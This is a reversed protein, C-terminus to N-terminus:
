RGRGALLKEIEDIEKPVDKTLVECGTKTILVTDEIRVGFGKEPYYLAPEIAFVMGEKLVGGLPVDHVCLGVGHGFGGTLGRPDIGKAKVAAAVEERVSQPTAGPRYAAICAKQVELVIAYVERQEPTFKGSAPWTRTIDMALHDLDAGFDMLVVEGAGARRANKEYGKLVVAMAAAELEYEFVGPRTALMAQRVGEASLRGNRRMIEIEEPTKVARLADIAPAIDALATQPYRQRLKELRYQDVSLQDNYHGRARRGDMLATESRADDLTDRPSLRVYLKGAGRGTLRALFEDLDGVALVETFGAKAKAAADELLGPGDYQIERASRQPLFLYAGPRGFPVLVLVGGLDDNGTLYFYDNDQRFHTGAPVSADGFLVVAGDKVQAMLAARRRVFEEPTYGTRQALLPAALLVALLVAAFVRSPIRRQRM